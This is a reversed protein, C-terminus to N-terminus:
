SDKHEGRRGSKVVHSSPNTTDSTSFGALSAPRPGRPQRGRVVQTYGFRRCGELSEVEACLIACSVTSELLPHHELGPPPPLQDAM